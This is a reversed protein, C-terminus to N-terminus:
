TVQRKRKVSNHKSPPLTLALELPWGKDLRERLKPEAIGLRQAWESIRLTEGNHTLLRRGRRNRNQEARTAWRCNGPEYGRENDIRELTLGPPRDGMDAYFYAFTEWRVCCTIGRGGYDAFAPNNPNTCRQLMNAWSKYAPTSSWGSM